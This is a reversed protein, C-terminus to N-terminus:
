LNIIRRIASEVIGSGYMLKNKEYEFYQTKDQHKTLYNLAQRTKKNTRILLSKCTAVIRQCQGQWLWEKFQNLYCKRQQKNIRRPLKEVLHHVYQSAHYYDLTQTIRQPKVNLELLLPGLRNWIWPAGDGIIQIHEAQDIQLRKLYTKLLDYIQSKNFRTGYIPLEYRDPRGNQDLVDIVFLKPECWPTKFTEYGSAAMQGTYARLRTRGGDIAILVRKNALTEQPHLVFKAEGQQYIYDALHNNLQRVASLGIQVGFKNLTQHAVDYSPGLASLYGVKDYLGPSANGLVGWYRALLHRSGEWGEKPQKVYPSVVKIKHGSALRISLKRDVIKRGGSQKAQAKLKPALEKATAKLLHESIYNGLDRLHISLQGEFQHLDGQELNKKLESLHAFLVTELYNSIKVTTTLIKM